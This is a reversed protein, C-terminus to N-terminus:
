KLGVDALQGFTRGTSELLGGALLARGLLNAPEATVTYRGEAGGGRPELVFTACLSKLPGKRFARCHEFWQESVWNVPKERWELAFPGMKARGLYLVSGDPRPQEEIEHKPLGAAENFRATDALLPWIKEPPAEFRWIWTRSRATTM